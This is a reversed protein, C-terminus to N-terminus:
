VFLKILEFYRPNPTNNVDLTPFIAEESYKMDGRMVSLHSGTDELIYTRGDDGDVIRAQQAYTLKKPKSRRGMGDFSTRLAREGRNNVRQIEFVVPGRKGGGMPWNQITASIRPNSYIKKDM